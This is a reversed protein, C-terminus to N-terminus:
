NSIKSDSQAIAFTRIETSTQQALIDKSLTQRLKMDITPTCLDATTSSQGMSDSFRIISEKGDWMWWCFM